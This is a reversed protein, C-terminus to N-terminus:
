VKWSAESVRKSGKGSCETKRALKEQIKGPEMPTQVREQQWGGVVAVVVALM